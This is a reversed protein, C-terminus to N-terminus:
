DYRMPILDWDYNPNEYRSLPQQKGNTLEMVTAYVFRKLEKISIKNNFNKDLDANKNFAKLVAYTFVGNNWQPAEYAYANGATAAIVEAGSSSSSSAFLQSIVQQLSLDAPKKVELGKPAATTDL